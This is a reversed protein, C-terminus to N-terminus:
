VNRLEITKSIRKRQYTWMDVSLKYTNKLSLPWCKSQYSVLIGAAFWVANLHRVKSTQSFQEETQVLSIFHLCSTRRFQLFALANPHFYPIWPSHPQFFFFTLSPSFFFYCILLCSFIINNQILHFTVWLSKLSVSSPKIERNGM